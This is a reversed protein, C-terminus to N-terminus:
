QVNIGGNPMSGNCGMTEWGMSQKNWLSVILEWLVTVIQVKCLVLMSRLPEFPSLNQYLEQSKFSKQHIQQWQKNNRMDLYFTSSYQDIHIYPGAFIAFYYYYYSYIYINHIHIFSQVTKFKLIALNRFSDHNPYHAKIAWSCQSQYLVICSM